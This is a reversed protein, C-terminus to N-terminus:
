YYMLIVFPGTDNNTSGVSGLVTSSNTLIRSLSYFFPRPTTFYNTLSSSEEFYCVNCVCLHAHVCM